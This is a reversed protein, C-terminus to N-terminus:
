LLYKELVEKLYQDIPELKKIEDLLLWKFDTHEDSLKVNGDAKGLYTLRVIHRDTKLIDQATVLKPEDQIELGTEEKVERELNELLSYGRNIRGGPIGWEVGVEPYKEASRCIMLYKGEKNQLIIKVGVQLDM